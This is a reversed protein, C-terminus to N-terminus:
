IYKLAMPVWQDVLDHANVGVMSKNSAVPIDCFENLIPRGILRQLNEGAKKSVWRDQRLFLNIIIIDTKGLIAADEDLDFLKLLKSNFLEEDNSVNILGSKNLYERIHEFAYKSAMPIRDDNEAMKDRSELDKYFTYPLDTDMGLLPQKDPLSSLDYFPTSVTILKIPKSGIPRISALRREKVLDALAHFAFLGGFSHAIITLPHNERNAKLIAVKVDEIWDDATVDVKKDVMGQINIGSHLVGWIEKGNNGENKRVWGWAFKDFVSLTDGPLGPVYIVLQKTKIEPCLWRFVECNKGQEGFYWRSTSINEILGMSKNEM